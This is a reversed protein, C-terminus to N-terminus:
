SDLPEWVGARREMIVWDPDVFEGAVREQWEYLVAAATITVVMSTIRVVASGTSITPTGLAAGTPIGGPTVTQNTPTSVLSLSMETIRVVVGGAMSLVPTGLTVGSPVGTPAVTQPGSNVMIALSMETIRVVVGSGTQSMVPTGPAAASPVGAPTLTQGQILLMETIRVVPPTGSQSLTPTGLAAGTPVGTPVVSVATSVTPAGLASGTPVGTPTTTVTTTLTPTGLAAGTAIGTPVVTTSTSLVPTGTAAGTAVGTPAVGTATTLVPTGTAAGTAVATPTVTQPGSGAEPIAIVLGTWDGGTMTAPGYNRTGSAQATWSRAYVTYRGSFQTSTDNTGGAPNSGTVAANANYEGGAALVTYTSGGPLTISLLGNAIDTSNPNGVRVSAGANHEAAPIKWGCVGMWDAGGPRLQVRVVITGSSTAIAEGGWVDCDSAFSSDLTAPASWAGTTGSQTTISRTPTTGYNHNEAMAAVVLRDGVGVSTFTVDKYLGTGSDTGISNWTGPVFTLAM